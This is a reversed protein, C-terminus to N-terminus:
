AIACVPGARPQVARLIEQARESRRARSPPLSVKMVSFWPLKRIARSAIAPHRSATPTCTRALGPRPHRHVAGGAPDAPSTRGAPASTRRGSGSRACCGARDLAAADAAPENREPAADVDVVDLPRKEPVGGARDGAPRRRRSSTSTRASAAPARQPLVQALGLRVVGGRGHAPTPHLRSRRGDRSNSAEPRRRFVRALNRAGICSRVLPDIARM